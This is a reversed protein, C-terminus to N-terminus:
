DHEQCKLCFCVALGNRQTLWRGGAAHADSSGKEEVSFLQCAIETAKEAKEVAHKKLTTSISCGVELNPTSSSYEEQGERGVGNVTWGSLLCFQCVRPYM